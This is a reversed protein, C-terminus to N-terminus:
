RVNPISANANSRAADYIGFIRPVIRINQGLTHRRDDNSRKVPQQLYQSWYGERRPAHVMRYDYFNVGIELAALQGQNAIAPLLDQLTIVAYKEM